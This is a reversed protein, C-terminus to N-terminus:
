TPSNGGSGMLVGSNLTSLHSGDSSPHGM